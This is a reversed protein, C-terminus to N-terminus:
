TVAYFTGPAYQNLYCASLWAATRQVNSSRLEAILGPFAYPTGGAYKGILLDTTPLGPSTIAHTVLSAPTTLTNGLYTTYSGILSADGGSYTAALYQWTSNTLNQATRCLSQSGAKELQLNNTGEYTYLDYGGSTGGNSNSCIVYVSNSTISTSWVWVEATLAGTGTSFEGGADIYTPAVTVTGAGQLASSPGTGATVGHNTGVTGTLSETVSLSSPTGFHWVGVYGNSWTGANNGQYTSISSNGYQIYIVTGVAISTVNVWAVIAGSTANYSVLEFPLIGSGNSATTTSFIIDYGSANNVHGSNAITKLQSYTGVFLMPFNSLTGTIQGSQITITNYYGYGTAGKHRTKGMVQLGYNM